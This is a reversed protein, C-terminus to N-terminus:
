AVEHGAADGAGADDEDEDTSRDAHPARLMVVRDCRRIVEDNRSMAILTWPAEAAFLTRLATRLSDGDLEDLVDDIILLRPQGAIARALMVRRAQGFSLPAGSASLQTNFGDPLLAIEDLLGVADLAARAREYTVEPRLMRVNDIVSAEVIEFGKVVAVQGRIADLRVERLDLEDIEVRGKQPTRLGYLLDVLTSKGAGHGGVVVVKENAGVSLSYDSIVTRGGAYAFSIDAVRVAAGGSRPAVLEGAPSELPLDILQGLKDVAALLDYFNELQKGFKSFSALVTAVILEAAVLQGLTLQNNIVLWGGLTLLATSALAQLTLAGVIQRFVVSFHRRRAALYGHTLLDARELAFSPGSAVKFTLPNRVIEELSAAVAYKAKSEGIATSVGGRGLGFVIVVILVILFVDFGLLVPHYAALVLLGIVTSLVLAIGDLLMAQGAKQVTMVDFFRNVLEPGHSRDWAEVRVRPLRYALDAVVRVFLRRQIIEVVFAQLARLAGALALFALLLLGLIVVPQLLGGFAVMNVLSQVAIPTALSLIGVGIAYLVVAFIDGREPKLLGLLRRLPPISHGHHHAADAEALPQARQGVLWDCPASAEVALLSAIQASTLRQERRQGSRFTVVRGRRGRGDLLVIWGDELRGVLPTDPSAAALAEHAVGRFPAFRVGIELGAGGLAAQWDALLAANPATSAAHRIAAHAATVHLVHTLEKLVGIVSAPADNLGTPHNVNAQSM